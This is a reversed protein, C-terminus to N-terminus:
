AARGRQQVGLKNSLTVDPVDSFQHPLQSPTAGSRARGMFTTFAQFMNQSNDRDGFQLFGMYAAYYPVADTWLEPIAEPDADINLADPLCVTDLYLTYNIDPLNVWLTGLTGQGYQAWYRPWSAIPVPTSLIFRNFWEWERSYVKKRGSAVQYTVDRVSLVSAVGTTGTPFTVASFPYQQSTPAISLTSYVRICEGEGAVQGRAINIFDRLDFDNYKAFNQDNLLLRRTIQQYETLM